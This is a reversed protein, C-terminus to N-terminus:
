SSVTSRRGKWLKDKYLYTASLSSASAGYKKATARISNCTDLLNRNIDLVQIKLSREKVQRKDILFVPGVKSDLLNSSNLYQSVMYRSVELYEAVKLQSPYEGIVKKSSDKIIIARGHVKSIAKRIKSDLPENKWAENAKARIFEWQQKSLMVDSNLHADSMKKRTEDSLKSSERTGVRLAVNLSFGLTDLFFQEIILLNWQTLSKLLSIEKPSLDFASCMVLYNKITLLCGFDLSDLGYKRIYNYLKPNANYYRIDSHKLNFMHRNYRTKMNVSLGIYYSSGDKSLFCYIGPVDWNEPIHFYHKIDKKSDLRYFTKIVDTYSMTIRCAILSDPRKILSIDPLNNYKTIVSQEM